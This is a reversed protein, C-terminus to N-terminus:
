DGRVFQLYYLRSLLATAAVGQVGGFVLARRTVLKQLDHPRM